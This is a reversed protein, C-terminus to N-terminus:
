TREVGEDASVLTMAIQRNHATWLSSRGWSPPPSPRVESDGEPKSDSTPVVEPLAVRGTAPPPSV